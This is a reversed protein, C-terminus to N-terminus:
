AGRVPPVRLLVKARSDEKLGVSPEGIGTVLAGGLSLGVELVRHTQVTAM